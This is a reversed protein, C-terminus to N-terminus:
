VEQKGHPAATTLGTHAPAVDLGQARSVVGRRPWDPRVFIERGKCKSCYLRQRLAPVPCDGLRGLLPAVDLRTSHSCKECWVWLRLKRAYLWSLTVAESMFWRLGFYSCIFSCFAFM